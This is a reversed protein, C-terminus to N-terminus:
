GRPTSQREQEEKRKGVFDEERIGLRVRSGNRTTIWLEGPRRELIDPYCIEGSGARVIVIPKTWTRGEDESFALSLELRQWSVNERQHHSLQDRGGSGRIPEKGELALRNWVLALRGSALRILYGPANSGDIQSPGIVRWSLGNDESYGKWFYDLTTRMFMLLRGDSLEAVTGEFTGDEFGRGGIDIINSRRWTKGNDTSVYTCQGHRGPNLILRQVPVVIQGGSTQIMNILAGCYGEFIKQRDVWTKGGDLSRITWVARRGGKPPQAKVADWGRVISVQTAFDMYVLVIEGHRTRLLVGSSPIGPAPGDYITRPASWTKGDDNSTVVSNGEVTLLRGEDLEVFPGSKSLPLVKCRPEFWLEQGAGSAGERALPTLLILITLAAKSNM